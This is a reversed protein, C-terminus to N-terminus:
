GNDGCNIKDDCLPKLRNDVVKAAPYIAPKASALHSGCFKDNFMSAFYSEFQSNYTDLVIEPPAIVEEEEEPCPCLSEPIEVLGEIVVLEECPECVSDIEIARLIITEDVAKPPECVECFGTDKNISVLGEFEPAIYICECLAKLEDESIPTLEPYVKPPEPEPLPTYDSATLDDGTLQDERYIYVEQSFFEYSQVFMERDRDWNNHVCIKFERDAYTSPDDVLAARITVYYDETTPLAANFTAGEIEVQQDNEFWSFSPETLESTNCDMEEIFGRITGNSLMELGPALEGDIIRYFVDSDCLREQPAFDWVPMFHGHEAQAIPFVTFPYDTFEVELTYDCPFDNTKICFRYEGIEGDYTFTQYPSTLFSVAVETLTGEIFKFLTLECNIPATTSPIIRINYTMTENEFMEYSYYDATNNNPLTGSYLTNPILFQIDTNENTLNLLCNVAM